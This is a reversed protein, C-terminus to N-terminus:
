SRQPIEYLDDLLQKQEAEFLAKGNPNKAESIPAESNFSGVYVQPLPCTHVRKCYHRHCALCPVQTREHVAAM